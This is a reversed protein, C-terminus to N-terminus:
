ESEESETEIETEKKRRINKIKDRLKSFDMRDGLM